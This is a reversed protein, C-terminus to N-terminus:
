GVRAERLTSLPIDLRYVLGAPEYTM